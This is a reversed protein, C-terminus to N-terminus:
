FLGCSSLFDLSLCGSGNGGGLYQSLVYYDSMIQVKEAINLLDKGNRMMSGGDLNWWRKHIGLLNERSVTAYYQLLRIIHYGNGNKMKLIIQEDSQPTM